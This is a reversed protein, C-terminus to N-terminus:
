PAPWPEAVNQDLGRKGPRVALNIFFSRSFSLPARFIQDFLELCSRFEFVEGSLIGFVRAARFFATRQSPNSLAARNRLKLFRSERLGNTLDAAQHLATVTKVNDADISALARV